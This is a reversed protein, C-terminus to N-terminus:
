LKLLLEQQLLFLILIFYFGRFHTKNNIAKILQRKNIQMIFVTEKLESAILNVLHIIGSDNM